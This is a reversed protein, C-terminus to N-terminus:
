STEDDRNPEDILEELMKRDEKSLCASVLLDPKRAM